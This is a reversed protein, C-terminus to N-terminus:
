FIWIALVKIAIIGTLAAVTFVVGQLIRKLKPNM